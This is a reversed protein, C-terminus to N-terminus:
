KHPIKRVVRGFFFNPLMERRSSIEGIYRYREIALRPLLSTECEDFERVGFLRLRGNALEVILGELAAVQRHVLGAGPLM